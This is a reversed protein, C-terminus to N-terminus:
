AMTKMESEVSQRTMLRILRGLWKMYIRAQVMTVTKQLVPPNASRFYNNSSRLPPNPICDVLHHPVIPVM